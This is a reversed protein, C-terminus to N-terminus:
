GKILGIYKEIYAQAQSAQRTEKNMKHGQMGPITTSINTKSTSISSLFEKSYEIDKQSEVIVTDRVWCGIAFSM